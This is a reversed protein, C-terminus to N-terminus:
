IEVQKMNMLTNGCFTAMLQSFNRPEMARVSVKEPSRPSSKPECCMNIVWYHRDRPTTENVPRGELTSRPRLAFKVAFDPAVGVFSIQLYSLRLMSIREYSFRNQVTQARQNRIYGHTCPQSSRLTNYKCTNVTPCPEPAWQPAVICQYPDGPITQHNYVSAHPGVDNSYCLYGCNDRQSACEHGFCGRCTGTKASRLAGPLLRRRNADAISVPGSM